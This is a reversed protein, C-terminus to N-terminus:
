VAADRLFRPSFRGTLSSSAILQPLSLRPLDYFRAVEDAFENASLATLEWLERLKKEGPTGEHTPKSLLNGTISYKRTLYSAFELWGLAPQAARVPPAPSAVAPRLPPVQSGAAPRMSPVFGKVRLQSVAM